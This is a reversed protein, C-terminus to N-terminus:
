SQEVWAIARSRSQVDITDLKTKDLYVSGEDPIVLGALMSLLTSKGAGNPGILGILEGAQVHLQVNSVLRRNARILSVKDASLEM